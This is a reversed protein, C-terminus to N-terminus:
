IAEAFYDLDDTRELQEKAICFAVEEITVADYRKRQNHM